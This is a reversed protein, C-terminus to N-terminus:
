YHIWCPGNVGMELYKEQRLQKSPRIRQVETGYAVLNSM